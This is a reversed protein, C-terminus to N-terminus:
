REPQAHRRRALACLLREQVFYAACVCVLVLVWHSPEFGPQDFRVPLHTAEVLVAAEVLSLLASVPSVWRPKAPRAGPREWAPGCGRPPDVSTDMPRPTTMEAARPQARRASVRLVFGLAIAGLVVAPILRGFVAAVTAGSFSVALGALEAVTGLRRAV